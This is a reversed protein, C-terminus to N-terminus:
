RLRGKEVINKINYLGQEMMLGYNGEYFLSGMKEWPYWKQYFDIGWELIVSNTGTKFLQWSINLPKKNKQIWKVQLTSDTESLVEVSIQSLMEKNSSDVFSPHWRLWQDKNKILSFISDKPSNITVVKSLRIHSPIILSVATVVAFLLVASIFALKILRM